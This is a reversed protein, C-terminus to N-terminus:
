GANEDTATPDIKVLKQLLNRCKNIHPCGPNNTDKTCVWQGSGNDVGTYLV